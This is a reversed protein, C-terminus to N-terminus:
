VRLEERGTAGRGPLGLCALRDGLSNFFAGFLQSQSGLCFRLLRRRGSWRAKTECGRPRRELAGAPRRWSTVSRRQCELWAMREGHDGALSARAVRRPVATRSSVGVLPGISRQRDQRLSKSSACALWCVKACASIMQWSTRVWTGAPRLRPGLGPVPPRGLAYLV